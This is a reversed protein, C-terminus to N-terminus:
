GGMMRKLEYIVFLADKPSLADVNLNKL